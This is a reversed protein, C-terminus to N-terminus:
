LNKFIENVRQSLNKHLFAFQKLNDVLDNPVNIDKLINWDDDPSPQFTVFVVGNNNLGFLIKAQPLYIATAVEYGAHEFDSCYQYQVITGQM